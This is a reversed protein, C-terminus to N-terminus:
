RRAGTGQTAVAEIAGALGLWGVFETGGSDKGTGDSVRGTISNPGSVVLELTLTRTGDRTM